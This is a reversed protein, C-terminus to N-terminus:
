AGLRTDAAREKRWAAPPMAFERKFARNFASESEYGCREAIRAISEIGTRLAQAALALRWGTLYQMPPEGILDAFREALVSRSMAVERALGDVTWPHAPRAHLMALARGIQPDRLGALWGKQAPPLSAAYRRLAEVFMLESLKALMSTGGPNESTSEQVGVNLLQLLWTSNADNGLPVRVLRPLSTLLPRCVRRDCALYGCVFRTLEGGGGHRLHILSGPLPEVRERATPALTVDSGIVHLDDHPFLLVDGATAEITEAGDALRVGCRGSTLVHFFVVHETAPLRQAATHLGFKTETCWPATFEATLYVAGDLRIAKLVESLADM